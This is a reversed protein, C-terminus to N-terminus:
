ESSKKRRIKFSFQSIQTALLLSSLSLLFPITQTHEKNHSTRKKKMERECSSLPSMLETAKLMVPLYKAAPEVSLVTLNHSGRNPLNKKKKKEQISHLSFFPFKPAVKTPAVCAM